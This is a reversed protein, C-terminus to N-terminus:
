YVNISASQKIRINSGSFSASAAFIYTGLPTGIASFTKSYSGSINTSGSSYFSFSGTPLLKKFTRVLAYAVPQNLTDKVTVTITSTSQSGSGSAATIATPNAVVSSLEKSLAM